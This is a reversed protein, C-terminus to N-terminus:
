GSQASPESFFCPLMVPLVALATNHPLQCQQTSSPTSTYPPLPLPIHSPHLHITPPTSSHTPPFSTHTPPIFTHPLPLPTNHSPYLLKHSPHLTHSPYLLTTPPTGM